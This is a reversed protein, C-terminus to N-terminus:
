NKDVLKGKGAFTSKWIETPHGKYYIDGTSREYMDIKLLGNVNVEMRGSTNLTLIVNQALADFGYFYGQGGAFISSENLTGKMYVDGNGHMGGYVIDANLNLHLNGSNSMYYNLTDCTFQSDMYVDGLGDNRLKRIKPLTVYVIVERKYSRTFDCKNEDSITLIGDKVITKVLKIVQKGAEVRVKYESGEILHVDIEDQVFVQNFAELNRTEETQKGTGKFCDCLNEKKCTVFVAALILLLIYNKVRVFM